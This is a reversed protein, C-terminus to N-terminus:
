RASRLLAAAFDRMAREVRRLDAGKLRGVSVVAEFM